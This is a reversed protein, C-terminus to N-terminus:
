GAEIRDLLRGLTEVIVEPTEVPTLHCAGPIVTLTSGPISAHMAQSMEVPAAYDDAGVVIATPATVRALRDSANFAGLARCTEGYAAVDNALFTAMCQQVREPHAKRFPESFWRSAQFQVMSALGDARAKEARQRWNGPADPGYWSTTDILALAATLEPHDIGFQLAVCGGLSAGAVLAKRYGLGQVVKKVDLAFLEISYPGPPKSSQGHGRLDVCVVSAREAVAPAVLRWFGHDLALSHVLVVCLEQPSAEGDRPRGQHQRPHDQHRRYHQHYIFVGDGVDIGGAQPVANRTVAM